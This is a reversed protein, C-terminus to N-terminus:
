GTGLGPPEPGPAHGGGDYRGQDHHGAHKMARRIRPMGTSAGLAVPSGPLETVAPYAPM